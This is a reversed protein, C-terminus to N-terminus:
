GVTRTTRITFALDLCSSNASVTLVIDDGAAVVNASSHSQSQETSSVSNATGGLATTNIKFAATCTGSLSKTTTETITCGTPAKLVVIYDKNTPVAIIGGFLETITNSIEGIRDRVWETTAISTDDDSGGPTPARPNGTFEPSDKLAYDNLETQVFATTAVSTDNDNVAPTPARPNGVFIPSDKKAYADLTEPEFVNEASATQLENLRDRVWELFMPDSTPPPPGTFTVQRM